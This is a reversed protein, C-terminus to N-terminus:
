GNRLVKLAVVARVYEAELSALAAEDRAPEADLGELEMERALASLGAAGFTSANSKLSHAARRYAADKGEARARRLEAMMGPAEELFTDVLEKIFEAGITAKLRAYVTPDIPKETM